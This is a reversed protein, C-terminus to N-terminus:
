RVAVKNKQNQLKKVAPSFTVRSFSKNTKKLRDLRETLIALSALTQEDVDRERALSKVVVRCHNSGTEIM